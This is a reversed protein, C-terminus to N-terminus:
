GQGAGTRPERRFEEGKESHTEREGNPKPARIGSNRKGDIQKKLRTSPFLLGIKSGVRV